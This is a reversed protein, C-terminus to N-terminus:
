YNHYTTIKINDKEKAIDYLILCRSFDSCNKYKHKKIFEKLYKNNGTFICPIGTGFSIKDYTIIRNYIYTDKKENIKGMSSMSIDIIKYKKHTFVDQYTVYGNVNDYNVVKFLGVISDKMAYLMKIKDKDKFKKKEIYIETLSPIKSHTKYIFLENFIVADDHKTNNLSIAMNKTERQVDPAVINFYDEVPLKGSDIYNLM